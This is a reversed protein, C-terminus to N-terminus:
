AMGERCGTELVVDQAHGNARGEKNVVLSEISFQREGMVKLRCLLIEFNICLELKEQNESSFLMLKKNDLIAYVRKWSIFYGPVQRKLWGKM